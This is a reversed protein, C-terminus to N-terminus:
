GPGDGAAHVAHVRRLPRLAPPVWGDPIHGHYHRALRDVGASQEALVQRAQNQLDSRLVLFAVATIALTVTAVAVAVAVTFRTRLM